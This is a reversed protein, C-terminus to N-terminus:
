DFLVPSQNMYCEVGDGSARRAALRPAVRELLEQPEWKELATEYSSRASVRRFWRQLNPYREFPWGILDFRHFNPIWAIDALSFTPGALFKRGDDM